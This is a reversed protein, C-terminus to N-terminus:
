RLSSIVLTSAKILQPSYLKEYSENYTEKKFVLFPNSNIPLPRRDSLYMDFWPKSIYSTNKNKKDEEILLRQSQIGESKLFEDTFLKTKKFAEASLM